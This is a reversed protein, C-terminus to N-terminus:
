VLSKQRKITAQPINSDKFEQNKIFDFMEQQDLAQNGDGDIENFIQMILGFEVKQIGKVEKIYETIFPQAMQLTMSQESELKNEAWLEEVRARIEEESMSNLLKAMRKRSTPKDFTHESSNCCGM